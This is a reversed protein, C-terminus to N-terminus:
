PASVLINRTLGPVIRIFGKRALARLHCEAANPNFKFHRSIEARTPPIGALVRERVFTLVEDQRPTLKM